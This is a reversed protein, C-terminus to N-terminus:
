PSPTAVPAPTGIPGAGVEGALQQLLAELTQQERGYTAWDGARLATQAREYAALAQEALSRGQEGAEAAPPEGATQGVPPSAPENAPPSPGAFAPGGGTVAALADALTARMVVRENSAVIVYRLETPAGETETAQLYLPQIYLVTEGVPIVLMNGRIVRSGAQNLLTIQSSIDPEQNIRADIQQPGYVTAQRPFRYSVLRPDGAEDTQAAVWSTMNQRGVPTYPLILRFAPQQEGPLTSVVYYAEMRQTQGGLQEQAVAWRDEGNYFATPDTVHYSALAEAQLDFLREPYRFHDAVAPPADAVPTFLDPFIGDYADAIPDPSGTRYFTTTGDYADVVVKVSNRVYNIGEVRSADPFRDSVTYADVIWVLRGDAVVIYPDPDYTLFPAVAQARGVVDRRLLVRSDEDLEGSFLVRRDRLYAALVLRTLYRDLAISGVAAGAYRTPESVGQLGTYEVEGTNVAVWEGPREGFYIEPREVQIPEEDTPPIAGALYHPLGQATAESAPSVVVGYGHTYVLHRNVWSRQAAAPLGALDFERAAVVVQRLQGDITYRDVDVDNFVYYGALARLQQFTARIIRYDWLRVNAFTASQAALTGADPVGQGSLERSAIGDLGFAARTMAINDAIYPRERSLESPEVVTQQVAAPAIGGLLVALVGWAIVAGALLRLRTRFANAILLAAVVASALALAYNAWRTVNVDTYGAGFVAGRTSYLLEYNALLFGVSVLLLLLSGLALLHARVRSPLRRIDARQLGLRLAYVFATGLVTVIALSLAGNRLSTLAPLTFVYFGVDRGFVPDAVGFDGGQVAMLWTSWRASAASGAVLFVAVAAALLPWRLFREGRGSVFRSMGTPTASGGHRWRLAYALNAWFFAAAVGGGLLFAIARAAYRTTLVSRYGISGFWWWNVWFAATTYVLLLLAAIVMAAIMMRRTSPSPRWSPGALSPRPARGGGFPGPGRNRNRNRNRNFM